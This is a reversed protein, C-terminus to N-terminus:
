VGCLALPWNNNTLAESNVTGVQFSKVRLRIFIAGARGDHSPRSM